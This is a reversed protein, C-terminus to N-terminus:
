PPTLEYARTIVLPIVDGALIDLWHGSCFREGRSASTLVNCLNVASASNIEALIDDVLLPDYDTIQWPPSSLSFMFKSIVDPYIHHGGFSDVDKLAKKAQHYNEELNEVDRKSFM